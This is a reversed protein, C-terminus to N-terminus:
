EAGNYHRIECHEQLRTFLFRDCLNLDASYPSQKITIVGQSSICDKIRQATHPKANDFQLTLDKLRTKKQKLNTFRKNSDKLFQVFYEANATKGKPLATISFRAPSCTIRHPVDESNVKTKPKAFAKSGEKNQNKSLQVEWNIWLEDQVCYVDAM